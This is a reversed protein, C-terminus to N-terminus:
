REITESKEVNSKGTLIGWARIVPYGGFSKIFGWIKKPWTLKGVSAFEAMFWQSDTYPTQGNVVILDHYYGVEADWADPSGM